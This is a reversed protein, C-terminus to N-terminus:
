CCGRDKERGRKVTSNVIIVKFIIVIIVNIFSIVSVLNIVIIVSIYSIINIVSKIFGIINRKILSREIVVSEWV